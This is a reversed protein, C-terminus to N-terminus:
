LEYIQDYTRAYLVGGFKDRCYDVMNHSIEERQVLDLEFYDQCVKALEKMSSSNIVWEENFNIQKADGVNTSFCPVGCALSEIMVNPFAESISTIITADFASIIKNIKDCSPLTFVKDALKKKKIMQNIDHNDVIGEGIMVFLYDDNTQSLLHAFEIFGLLNKLHDLRAVIGIIKKSETIKLKGLLFSKTETCPKFEECDIWNPVVLSKGARYGAIKHFSAGKNSNYIVLHPVVRSILVCLKFTLRLTIKTNQNLFDASRVGWIIKPVSAIKAIIGGMLDAHYMWSHVIDPSVKKIYRFLKLISLFLNLNKGLNADYFEVNKNNIKNKLNGKGTLSVVFIKCKKASLLNIHRVLANQAGGIEFDVIIFLIKKM